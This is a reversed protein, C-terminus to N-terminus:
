SSERLISIKSSGLRASYLRTLIDLLATCAPQSFRLSTPRNCIIFLLLVVEDGEFVLFVEISEGYAIFGGALVSTATTLATRPYLAGGLPRREGADM